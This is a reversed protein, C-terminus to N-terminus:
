IGTLKCFAAKRRIVLATRSYARITRQRQGFDTNQWGMEIRMDARRVTYAYLRFDGVLATNQTMATTVVIPLGWLTRPGAQSPDGFLFRQNGDKLTVIDQWDLPHFIGASPQAFGTSQVLVMAKMFATIQDDTGLAQTQVGATAAATSLFGLLQPSTGTGTVLQTEEARQVELGLSTDILGAVLPADDLMRESVPLTTGIDEINVTRLTYVIASEPLAVVEATAAANATHTTEEMYQVSNQTTPLSPMLDAIVPTRFAYPVVDDSRVVFPAFGAATTMQTKLEPSGDLEIAFDLSKKSALFNAYGASEVFQRGLSKSERGEQRRDAIPAPSAARRLYDLERDNSKATAEVEEWKKLEAHEDTAKAELEARKDHDAPGWDLRGDAGKKNFLAKLEDHTAKLKGAAERLEVLASM